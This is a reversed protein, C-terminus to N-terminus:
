RARSASAADRKKQAKLGCHPCRKEAVAVHCTQCWYSLLEQGIRCVACSEKEQDGGCGCKDNTMATV